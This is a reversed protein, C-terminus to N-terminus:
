VSFHLIREAKSTMSTVSPVARAKGRLCPTV